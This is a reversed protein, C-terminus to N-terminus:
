VQAQGVATGPRYNNAVWEAIKPTWADGKRTIEEGDWRQVVREGDLVVVLPAQNAWDYWAFDAVNEVTAQSGEVYRVQMEVKLDGLIKQAKTCAPCNEKAFVQFVM